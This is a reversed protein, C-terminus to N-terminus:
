KNNIQKADHKRRILLYVVALLGMGSLCSIATFVILAGNDGTAPLLTKSVTFTTTATGSTSIIELTHRGNALTALYANSLTVRTSGEVVALYSAPVPKGDVATSLYDAFKADSKVTLSGGESPNIKQDAGATM